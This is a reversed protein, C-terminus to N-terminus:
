LACTSASSILRNNYALWQVPGSDVTRCTSTNAHLHSSIYMTMSHKECRSKPCSACMRDVALEGASIGLVIYKRLLFVIHVGDKAIKVTNSYVFLTYCHVM